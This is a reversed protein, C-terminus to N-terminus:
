QGTVLMAGAVLMAVSVALELYAETWSMEHWTGTAILRRREDTWSYVLYAGLALLGAGIAGVISM